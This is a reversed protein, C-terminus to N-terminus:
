EIREINNEAKNKAASIRQSDELLRKIMKHQLFALGMLLSETSYLGGKANIAECLQHCEDLMQQFLKRDGSRMIEGFDQCSEIEQTLIDDQSLPTM